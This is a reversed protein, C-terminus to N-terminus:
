LSFDVSLHLSPSFATFLFVFSLLMWTVHVSSVHHTWSLRCRIWWSVCVWTSIAWQAHGDCTRSILRPQATILVDNKQCIFHTAQKCTVPATTNWESRPCPHRWWIHDWDTWYNSLYKVLFWLLWGWPPTIIFPKNSFSFPNPIPKWM